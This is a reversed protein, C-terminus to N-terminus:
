APQNLMKLVVEETIIRRRILETKIRQTIDSALVRELRIDTVYSKVKFRTLFTRDFRDECIVSIGKKLYVYPSSAAAEWALTRIEQVDVSAPVDFTVVVMENLEGTNSNSVSQGIASWNPVTIISDDFTHIRTSRLGINVVEGYHGDVEIMDGVRFPQDILILIGSILNKVLDQLALGLAIGFSAAVAIVANTKPEFIYVVVIYAAAAWVVLRVVPTFRNIQLRYRSFRGTLIWILSYLVKLSLWAVVIVVASAFIKSFSLLEALTKITDQEM